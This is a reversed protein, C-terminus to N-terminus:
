FFRSMERPIGVAGNETHSPYDNVFDLKPYLLLQFAPMRTGLQRALLAVGSALNGGASDGAVAIREPDVDLRQADQALWLTADYADELGAPFPAEPALRYAVSLVLAGSAAALERCLGDHSDLDGGIFGGGHFFAVAPLPATASRPRYVRGPVTGWRVPVELDMIMGDFPPLVAPPAPDRRRFAQALVALPADPLTFPTQPAGERLAQVAPDLPNSM